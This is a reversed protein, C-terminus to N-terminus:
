FKRTLSPGKNQTDNPPNHAPGEAEIRYMAAFRGLIVTFQSLAQKSGFKIKASAFATHQFDHHKPRVQRQCTLYMRYESELGRVWCVLAGHQSSNTYTPELHQHILFAIDM